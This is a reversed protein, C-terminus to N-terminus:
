QRNGADNKVFDYLYLIKFAVHSGRTPTNRPLNETTRLVKNQLRQLELSLQGERIVM